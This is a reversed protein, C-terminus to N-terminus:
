DNIEIELQMMCDLCHWLKTVKEVRGRPWPHFSDCFCCKLVDPSFTRWCDVCFFENVDPDLWGVADEAKCESCTGRVTGSQQKKWEEKTSSEIFNKLGSALVQSVKPKVWSDLIVHRHLSPLTVNGRTRLETEIAQLMKAVQDGTMWLKGMKLPGTHELIAAHLAEWQRQFEPKHDPPITFFFRREEGYADSILERISSAEADHKAALITELADDNYRLRNQNVVFFLSQAKMSGTSDSKILSREQLMLSLAEIAAESAKGDTVFALVTALLAGVVTVISHSKSMANNGGECDFVVLHGDGCEHPIAAFDIGETVATAADDDLFVSEGVVKNALYSKGSRGDGVFAILCIPGPLGSLVELGEECLVPLDGQFKLLPFSRVAGGHSM